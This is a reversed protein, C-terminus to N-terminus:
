EEKQPLNDMVKAIVKTAIIYAAYLLAIFQAVIGVMGGINSTIYFLAAAMLLYLLLQRLEEVTMIEKFWTYINKFMLLFKLM